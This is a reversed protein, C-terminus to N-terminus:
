DKIVEFDLLGSKVVCQVVHGSPIKAEGIRTKDGLLKGGYYWRQRGPAEVEAQASLRKKAAGVTEGTNVVLRVDKEGMLSIRVRIKMDHGDKLAEEEEKNDDVPVSFDAPSDPRDKEQVLNIPHSLCYVPIAYRTGLEDYCEVLSGHPLSICAGDLIAQALQYDAAAAETAETAAKLAAWIEAKGEFAPATDWFEDRKSKLQGQTLPIDSKWRIKEHRLPRNKTTDLFATSTVSDISLASARRNRRGGGGGGSTSPRDAGLCAGM